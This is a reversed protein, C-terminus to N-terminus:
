NHKGIGDGQKRGAQHNTAAQPQKGWLQGWAVGFVHKSIGYAVLAALVSWFIEPNITM